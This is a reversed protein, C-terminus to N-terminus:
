KKDPAKPPIDAGCFKCSVTRHVKSKQVVQKKKCKPCTRSLNAVTSVVSKMM